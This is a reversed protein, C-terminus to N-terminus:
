PLMTTAILEWAHVDASTTTPSICRVAQLSDFTVESFPLAISTALQDRTAAPLHKYLLSLHPNLNYRSSDNAARRIIENIQGLEATMAFQVFLTKIFEDSQEIRLATLTVPKVQWAAKRLAHEAANAQDSAVHVTVHPEFVAADYRHALDKVIQQFFSRAPESPRLWYAIATQTTM